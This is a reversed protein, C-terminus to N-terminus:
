QRRGRERDARDPQGAALVRRRLALSRAAPGHLAACNCPMSARGRGARRSGGAAQRTPRGGVRAGAGAGPPACEWSLADVDSRAASLGTRASHSVALVSSNTFMTYELGLQQSDAKLVVGDLWPPPGANRLPGLPGLPLAAAACAAALLTLALTHPVPAM